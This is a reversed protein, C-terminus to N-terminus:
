RRCCDAPRKCCSGCDGPNRWSTTENARLLQLELFRRENGDPKSIWEAPALRPSPARSEAPDQEFEGDTVFNLSTLTKVLRDISNASGNADDLFATTAQRLADLEDLVPGLNFESAEDYEM